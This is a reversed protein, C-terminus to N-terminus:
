SKINLQMEPPQLIQVSFGDAAKAMLGKAACLLQPVPSTHNQTLDRWSTPCSMLSHTQVPLLEAGLKAEADQGHSGGCRVYM